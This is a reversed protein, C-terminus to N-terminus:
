VILYHVRFYFTNKGETLASKVEEIIGDIRNREPDNLSIRAALSKLDEELKVSKEGKKAM